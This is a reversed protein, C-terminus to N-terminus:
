RYIQLNRGFRNQLISGLGNPAFAAAPDSAARSLRTESTARWDLSVPVCGAALAPPRGEPPPPPSIVLDAVDAASGFRLLRTTAKPRPAM